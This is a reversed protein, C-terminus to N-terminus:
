FDGNGSDEGNDGADDEREKLAAKATDAEYDEDEDFEPGGGAGARRELLQVKNLYTVLGKYTDSAMGKASYAIRGFDGSRPAVDLENKKADQMIPANKSKFQIIWFGRQDEKKENDEAIADGDKAPAQAAKGGCSKHLANIMKVFKDNADEGKKLKLGCKFQQKGFKTDPKDLWAYIFIGKPTIGSEYIAKAEAM